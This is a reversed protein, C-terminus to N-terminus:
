LYNKCHYEDIVLDSSAKPHHFFQLSRYWASNLTETVKTTLKPGAEVLVQQYSSTKLHSLAEGFNQFLLVDFGVAKRADLWPQWAAPLDTDRGIVIILRRRPLEKPSFDPVHRVTFSPKDALVTGMGTLIVDSERRLEHAIKLSSNQTFTSGQEPIMTWHSTLGAPSPQDSSLRWAQKIVFFPQNQLVRCVFPLILKKCEAELVGNQVDCGMAKLTQAGSGKVSPNPDKTGFVIKKVGSKLIAETCPPTLGQHNCPELTIFLTLRHGLNKLNELSGLKTEAEKLVAAEAHPKGAGEHGRSAIIHTDDLVLCAGVAPNPATIGKFNQAELIALAM